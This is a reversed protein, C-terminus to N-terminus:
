VAVMARRRCRPSRRYSAESAASVSAPAQVPQDRREDAPPGRRPSIGRGGHEVESRCRSSSPTMPYPRSAGPRGTPRPRSSALRPAPCSTGGSTVRGTWPSAASCCSARRPDRATVTIPDGPRFVLLQMAEFPDGAIDITGEVIYIGREEHSADLPLRAGAALSADAYFMESFTWVPSRRGYLSGVILRVSTGRDAILPLDAETHHSFGPATEEAHAPLAVWTQIGFLRLSRRRRSQCAPRPGSGGNGSNDRAEAAARGAHFLSCSPEGDPGPRAHRLLERHVRQVAGVLGLEVAKQNAARITGALHAM